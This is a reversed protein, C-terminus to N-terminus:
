FKFLPKFNEYNTMPKGKILLNFVIAFQILKQKNKM